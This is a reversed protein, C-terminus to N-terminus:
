KRFRQGIFWGLGAVLGMLAVSSPEPIVAVRFGDGYGYGGVKKKAPAKKAPAKKAATYFESSALYLEDDWYGGGYMYSDTSETWEQANGNMDFTGNNEISVGSGTGVDWVGGVVNNYNVGNTGAFPLTDGTAYLTYGSGDSKLYAAKFWEDKTPLVYVTGYATVASDRDIGSVTNSPSIQYAGQNYSGSTLWNCFRAADAWSYSDAPILGTAYGAAGVSSDAAVVSNWQDATVEFKGVRYTYDVAGFGDGGSEAHMRNADSQAANGTHGINVFDMNITTSGHIVSDTHAGSVLMVSALLLTGQKRNM